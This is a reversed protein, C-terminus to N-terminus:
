LPLDTRDIQSIRDRPLFDSASPQGLRPRQMQGLPVIATDGEGLEGWLARRTSSPLEGAGALGIQELRCAVVSPLNEELPMVAVVRGFGYTHPPRQPEVVILHQPCGGIEPGALIPSLGHSNSPIATVYSRRVIDNVAVAEDRTPRMRPLKLGTRRLAADLAQAFRLARGTDGVVYITQPSKCGAQDFMCIDISAQDAADSLDADPLVVAVSFSAGYGTFQKTKPVRERVAAVTDDDGFVIVNDVDAVAQEELALDGGQWYRADLMGALPPGIAEWQRAIIESLARETGAAKLIASAGTEAVRYAAHLAPGIVNGPLILLTRLARSGPRESEDFVFTECVGREIMWFANDLAQEIVPGSWLGGALRERAERRVWSDPDRWEMAFRETAAARAEGAPSLSTM